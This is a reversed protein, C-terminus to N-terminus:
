ARMRAGAPDFLSGLVVQAAFKAGAIDVEVATGDVVDGNLLALAVPCDVRYGYSTSTTRGIITEGLYVPEHGLPVASQDHIKLSVVRPVNGEERKAALAEAGIFGGSKRVAFDLGTDIPTVDSDLEHGM